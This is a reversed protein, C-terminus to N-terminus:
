YIRGWFMIIIIFYTMYRGNVAFGWLLATDWVAVSPQSAFPSPVQQLCCHFQSPSCVLRLHGGAPMTSERVTPDTGYLSFLFFFFFLFFFYFMSSSLMSSVMYFWIISWCGVVYLYAWFLRKRIGYNTNPCTGDKLPEPRHKLLLVLHPETHNCGCLFLLQQLALTSLELCTHPQLPWCVQLWQSCRTACLM